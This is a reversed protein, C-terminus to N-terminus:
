ASDPQAASQIAKVRGIAAGLDSYSLRLFGGAHRAFDEVIAVSSDDPKTGTAMANAQRLGRFLPIGKFVSIDEDSLGEKPSHALRNRIRNLQTLGPILSTLIPDGKTDLLALKQACTLRAESLSGLRPNARALAKDLFYEVYLHARLIRGVTFPCLAWLGADEQKEAEIIERLRKGGGVEKVVLEAWKKAQLDDAPSKSPGPEITAPTDPRERENLLPRPPNQPCM